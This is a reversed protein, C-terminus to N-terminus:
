PVSGLSYRLDVVIKLTGGHPLIAVDHVLLCYPFFPNREVLICMFLYMELM